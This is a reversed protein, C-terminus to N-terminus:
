RGMLTTIREVYGVTERPAYPAIGRWRDCACQERDASIRGAGANYSALMILLRERRRIGDWLDWLWRDYWVGAAINLGPDWPDHVPLGSREGIERLTPPMIQMIGRAGAWSEADSSLGSEAIAQSKFWRWDFSPGFWRKSYKTFHHDYRTTWQPHEVWEDPTREACGALAAIAAALLIRRTM